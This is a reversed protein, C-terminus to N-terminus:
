SGGTPSALTTRISVVAPTSRAAASARRARPRHVVQLPHRDSDPERRAARAPSGESTPPPQRARTADTLPIRAASSLWAVLPRRKSGSPIALVSSFRRGAAVVRRRHCLRLDSLEPALDRTPLQQLAVPMGRRPRPTRKAVKASASINVLWTPARASASPCWGARRVSHSRTVTVQHVQRPPAPQLLAVLESL